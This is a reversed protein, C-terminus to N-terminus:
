PADAPEAPSAEDAVMEQLLLLRLSIDSVAERVQGRQLEYTAIQTHAASLQAGLGTVQESLSTAHATVLALRQTQVLAAVAAAIAVLALLWLGHRSRKPEAAPATQAPTAKGVVPESIKTGVAVLTPKGDEDRAKDRPNPEAM